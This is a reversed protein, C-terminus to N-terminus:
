ERFLTRPVNPPVLVTLAAPVVSFELPAPDVPEGDVQVPLPDALHLSVRRARRYVM